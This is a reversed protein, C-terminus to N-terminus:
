MTALAFSGTMSAREKTLCCRGRTCGFGTIAQRVNSLSM